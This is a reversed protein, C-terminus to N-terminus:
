AEIASKSRKAAAEEVVEGGAEGFGALAQELTGLSPQAQVPKRPLVSGTVRSISPRTRAERGLSSKSSSIPLMM